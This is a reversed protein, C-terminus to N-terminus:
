LLELQKPKMNEHHERAELWGVLFASEISEENKTQLWTRAQSPLEDMIKDVDLDHFAMHSQDTTIIAVEIKLTVLFKNMPSRKM